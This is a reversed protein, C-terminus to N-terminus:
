KRPGRKTASRIAAGLLEHAWRSAQSGAGGMAPPADPGASFLTDTRRSSSFGAKQLLEEEAFRRRMEVHDEDSV